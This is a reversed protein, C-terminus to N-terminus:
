SIRGPSDRKQILDHGKPTLRYQQKSSRPKDPITMEILNQHLLRALSKKFNGTRNSYGAAKLLVASGVTGTECSKLIVLEIQTLGVQQVHAEHAEHRSQINVFQIQFAQGVEQLNLEIGPWAKLENRIKRIGTGWGELLGLEKFIPALVRNRIESRGSGLEELSLTDPLPGPSTIELMDDFIALKIDSGGISYDRHIVANTLAERIAELPYEWRDQRYVEGITSSLAINRKIFAVVPEILSFVPGEFSAQDLFFRPETGKFRACEIKAYPFARKKEPGSSLLLAANTPFADGREHVKLSLNKFAADDLEKGTSKRYLKIFESLDLAEWTISYHVEEDFCRGYRYRQLSAITQESAKRNVSGIRIYTGGAPGKKKLYYPRQSGPFIEVVLLTKGEVNQIFVEPIIFPACTKQIHNVIREELAFLENDPVGILERPENKVGFVIKGGAGNSFALASCAVKDGGPWAEKFELRRSEPQLWFKKDMITVGYLLYLM